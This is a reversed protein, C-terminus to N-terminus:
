DTPELALLPLGVPQTSRLAQDLAVLDDRLRWVNFPKIFLRDWPRLRRGQLMEPSGTAYVVRLRPLLRRAKNALILGNDGSGLNLDTVLITIDCPSNGLIGLANTADAADLIELGTDELCECLTLRIIADDEVLLLAM